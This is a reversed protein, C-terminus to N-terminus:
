CVGMESKASPEFHGLDWIVNGQVSQAVPKTSLLRTGYPIEDKVQVDYATVNGRNVVKIDFTTPKGVQIEQPVVKEVVM